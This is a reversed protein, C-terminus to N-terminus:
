LPWIRHSTPPSAPRGAETRKSCHPYRADLAIGRVMLLQMPIAWLGKLGHYIAPPIGVQAISALHTTVTALACASTWLPWLRDSKLALTLFALFCVTDIVLLPYVTHGWSRQEMLAVYFSVVTILLVLGAGVRGARGGEVAAYVCCCLTMVWYIILLM